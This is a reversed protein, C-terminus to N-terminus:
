RQKEQEERARHMYESLDVDHDRMFLRMAIMHVEATDMWEKLYEQEDRLEQVLSEDIGSSESESEAQREDQEKQQEKQRERQESMSENLLEVTERLRAVERELNEVREEDVGSDPRPKQETEAVQGSEDSSSSGSHNMQEVVVNLQNKLGDMESQFQEFQEETLEITGDNEDEVEKGLVEEGADGSRVAQKGEETLVAVKPPTREGHGKEARTVEIWELDGLKRFRHNVQGRSMGTEARITSTDADGGHELLVQMFEQSLDDVAM